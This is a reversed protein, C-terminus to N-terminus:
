TASEESLDMEKRIFPVIQDPELGMIYSLEANMLKQADKLFGEDCQHLRKGLRLQERRHRHICCIMSLIEARDAEALIERYRLKRQNEDPIWANRRVDKSALLDDLEASSLVPRLKAVAAQNKTPIYYRADKQVLPMLVYYEVSKRDIMREELGVIRCVGHIGYIVQDGIQYM